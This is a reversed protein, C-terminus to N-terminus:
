SNILQELIGDPDAVARQGDTEIQQATSDDDYALVDVTRTSGDAYSFTVLDHLGRGPRAPIAVPPLTDLLTTVQGVVTQTLQQSRLLWLNYSDYYDGVQYECAVASVPRGPVLRSAGPNGVPTLSSIHPTCGLSDPSVVRVTALVASTSAKTPTTLDVVVEVVPIVLVGRVGSTSTQFGIQADATGVKTPTQAISATDSRQPPGHQPDTATLSITTLGPPSTERGTMMRCSHAVNNDLFIVSSQPPGCAFTSVPLDKNVVIEIGHYSVIKKGAPVTTPVPSATAPDAPATSRHSIAVVALSIAVVIAAVAAPAVLRSVRRRARPAPALLRQARPADAAHEDFTNRILQEFDDM